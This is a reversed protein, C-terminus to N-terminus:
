PNLSIEPNRSTNNEPNKQPKKSIGTFRNKHLPCGGVMNELNLNLAQAVRDPVFVTSCAPKKRPESPTNVSRPLFVGTGIREKQASPNGLGTNSSNSSPTNSSSCFFASSSLGMVGGGGGRNRGRNPVMQESRGQQVGCGWVSSGMQQQQHKAM